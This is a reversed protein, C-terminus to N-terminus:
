DEDKELIFDIVAYGVGFPGEYSLLSPTYERESLAGSLLSATQCGCPAADRILDKELRLIDKKKILELFKKDFKEGQESFGAPASPTLRHSLDGSAILGIKKDEKSLLDQLKKGFQFNDKISRSTVGMPILKIDPKKRKLFYLPVASGHDLNGGKLSRTKEMSLIKEALPPDGKFTLLAGPFSSTFSAGDKIPFDKSIEIHPSFVIVTEIEKEKLNEALKNMSEITKSVKELDKDNGVGPIIIPPHPCFSAFEIPM